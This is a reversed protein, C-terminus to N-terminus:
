RAPEETVDVGRPPRRLGDTVPSLWRLLRVGVLTWVIGLVLGVVVPSTPDVIWLTGVSSLVSIPAWLDSWGAAGGGEGDRDGGVSLGTADEIRRAVRDRRAAFPRREGRVLAVLGGDGVSRDVVLAVVVGALLFSRVRELPPTAGLWRLGLPYGAGLIALAVTLGVPTLIRDPADRITVADREHRVSM